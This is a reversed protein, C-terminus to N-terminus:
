KIEEGALTYIKGSRLIYVQGNRFVKRPTEDIINCDDLATNPNDEKTRFDGTYTQLINDSNDKVVIIFTYQTDSQLGTVTFRYGNSTLQATNTNHQASNRAPAFSIGTLQGNANFLLTCFVSGDCRIELTYTGVNDSAPWTFIVDNIAPEVVVDDTVAPDASICEMYRFLGFVMDYKYNDMHDCPIHLTANYNSFSSENAVPAEVAYAYINYLKRCGTFANKGITQLDTGFSAEKLGTCEAFASDGITTLTNPLEISTITSIDRFASKGITTAGAQIDISQIASSDRFLLWPVPDASYDYMTGTGTIQLKGNRFNWYLSEGCQGSTTQRFIATIITDQTLDLIRPNDTVGDSWGTFEYGFNPTATLTNNESCNKASDYDTKGWDVNNSTVIASYFYDATHEQINTYLSWNAASSYANKSGCPVNLVEWSHYYDSLEPPTVALINASKIPCNFFASSGISTVSSGITISTLGKCWWFAYRDISTVSNPITISTLGTCGGFANYGISTVSNPIITTQCGYLLTNTATEIIANCDNRSDFSPNGEEVIMSILNTCDAFVSWGISTVSNPITVSTLGTCSYFAKNGIRTVSNPIITTQCGYLLTNTATEIIANCNDRSDYHTNGSEVIMSVLGNCSTFANNRIDTVGNSIIISTLSTCSSFANEGISTVSEPITISSINKMEYCLYDPISDVENGFSFSTIQSSIPCFPADHWGWGGCKQADWIVSTLKSCGTFARNGISRVNKPITISTLLSCHEFAYEKISIVSNPITIGDPAASGCGLLTTKTADNYVFYDDVYGNVNKAGWPSGTATGSYVINLVDEFANEGISTVSNPITISILNYMGRCLGDPISDVEDGFTFSTLDKDFPGYYGIINCKKANWVVSTLSTCGEFASYGISTVSSPITVSTLSTCGRFAYDGISTVSDPITVSTLSTCGKFAYDGISTVSNPITISTLNTDNQFAYNSISTIGEKININTNDPMDGKYKYLVTSIYIVGDPQDEYWPTGYFAGSGISKVSNPITISTLKKCNRFASGGINTVSNPITVSTLEPSQEFASPAISTVRYSTGKYTVSDPITANKLFQYAYDSPFFPRYQYTVAATSDSTINYALGYSFFDYDVAAHICITALLAVFLSLIKKMLTFHKTARHIGLLAPPTYATLM